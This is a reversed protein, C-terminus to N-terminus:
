LQFEPKHKKSQPFRRLELFEKYREVGNILVYRSTYEANWGKDEYRKKVKEKVSTCYSMRMDFKIRRENGYKSRLKQEIRYCLFNVQIDEIEDPTSVEEVYFNILGNKWVQENEQDDMLDEMQEMSPEGDVKKNGFMTKGENTSIKMQTANM